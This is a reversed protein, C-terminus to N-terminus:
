SSLGAPFEAFYLAPSSTVTKGNVTVEDGAKYKASNGAPKDEQTKNQKPQSVDEGAKVWQKRTFTQGNKGKVQVEKQVLGSKNMAKLLADPEGFNDERSKKLYNLTLDDSHGM